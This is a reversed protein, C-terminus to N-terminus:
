NILEALEDLACQSTRNSSCKTSLENYYTLDSATYKLDEFTYQLVLTEQITESTPNSIRITFVKAAETASGLPADIITENVVLDDHTYIVSATHAIEEIKSIIQDKSKKNTITIAYDIYTGAPLNVFLSTTNKSYKYNAFEFAEGSRGTMEIGTIRIDGSARLYADGSVQLSTNYSAYIISSFVVSLGLMIKLINFKKMFEKKRRSGKKENGIGGIKEKGFHDHLLRIVRDNQSFNRIKKPFFCM